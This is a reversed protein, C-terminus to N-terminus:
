RRTGKYPRRREERLLRADVRRDDYDGDDEPDFTRNCSGCHYNRDGSPHVSKIRGCWPCRQPQTM